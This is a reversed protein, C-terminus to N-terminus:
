KQLGAAEGLEETWGGRTGVESTLGWRGGGQAKRRETATIASERKTLVACIGVVAVEEPLGV